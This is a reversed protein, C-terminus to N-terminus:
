RPLRQGCGGKSIQEVIPKKITWDCNGNTNTSYIMRERHPATITGHHLLCCSYIHFVHSVHEHSMGMRQTEDIDRRKNQESVRTHDVNQTIGISLNNNRQHQATNRQRRAQVRTGQTRATGGTHGMRAHVKPGPIPPSLHTPSRTPCDRECRNRSSSADESTGPRGKGSCDVLHEFGRDDMGLAPPPHPTTTTM